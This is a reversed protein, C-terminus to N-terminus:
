LRGQNSVASIANCGFRRGSAPVVPMRGRPAWTRGVPDDSRLGM